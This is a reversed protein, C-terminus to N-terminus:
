SLDGGARRVGNEDFGENSITFIKAPVNSSANFGYFESFGDRTTLPSVNNVYRTQCFEVICFYIGCM